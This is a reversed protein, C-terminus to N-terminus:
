NYTRLELSPNTIGVQFEDSFPHLLVPIILLQLVLMIIIKFSQKTNTNGLLLFKQKM